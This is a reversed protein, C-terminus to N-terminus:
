DQMLVSSDRVIRLTRDTSNSDIVVIEMLEKPYTQEPINELKQGITKEENYTPIVVTIRPLFDKKRKITKTTFKSIYFYYGGYTLVIILFLIIGVLGFVQSLESV